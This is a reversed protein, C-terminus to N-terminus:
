KNNQIAVSDNTGVNQNKNGQSHISNESKNSNVTGSNQGISQNGSGSTRVGIEPIAPKKSFAGKLAIVLVIAFVFIIIILATGPRKRALKSLETIANWM